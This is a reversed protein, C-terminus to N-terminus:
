GAIVVQVGTAQKIDLAFDNLEESSFTRPVSCTQPAGIVLMSAEVQRVYDEISPQVAGHRVVVEADVGQERARQQAIHLLSRGLRELEDDLAAALAASVSGAFSPDAVFLFILKTDYEKALEIAREQTSRCVRGGRTACVIPGTM